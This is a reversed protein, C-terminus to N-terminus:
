ENKASDPWWTLHIEPDEGFGATVLADRWDVKALTVAEELREVDGSSLKLCAYRIRQLSEPTAGCSFPLIDACEQVLLERALTYDDGSFLARLRDDTDQSLEVAM